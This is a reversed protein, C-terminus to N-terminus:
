AANSAGYTEPAVDALFRAFDHRAVFGLRRAARDSAYVRDIRRPLTWGRRAFLARVGPFHSEIVAAAGGPTM